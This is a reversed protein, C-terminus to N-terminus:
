TVETDLELPGAARAWELAGAAVDRVAITYHGPPGAMRFRVRGFMDTTAEATAVREPGSVRAEIALDPCRRDLADKVEIMFVVRYRDDELPDPALATLQSIRIPETFLGRKPLDDPQQELEISRRARARRRLPM